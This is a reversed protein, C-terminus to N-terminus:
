LNNAPTVTIQFAVETDQALNAIPLNVEDFQPDAEIRNVFATLERRTAATGRITIPDLAGKSQALTYGEVEIQTAALADLKTILDAFSVSTQSQKLLAAQQNALTIAEEASEIAELEISAKDVRAEVSDTTIKITLFSPFALVGVIVVAFAFLCFWVTVVRQWYERVVAKRAHPPLLNSM